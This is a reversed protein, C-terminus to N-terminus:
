DDESDDESDYAIDSRDPDDTTLVHAAYADAPTIAPLPLPLAPSAVALAGEGIDSDDAAVAFIAYDTESTLIM